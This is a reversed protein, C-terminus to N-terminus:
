GEVESALARQVAKSPRCFMQWLRAELFVSWGEKQGKKWEMAGHLRM